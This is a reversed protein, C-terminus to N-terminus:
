TKEMVCFVERYGDRPEEWGVRGVWDLKGEDFLM